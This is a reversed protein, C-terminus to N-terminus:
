QNYGKELFYLEEVFKSINNLETNMFYNRIYFIPIKQNSKLYRNSIILQPNEELRNVFRIPITIFKQLKKEIRVKDRDGLASYVLVSIKKDKELLIELLILQLYDVPLPLKEGTNREFYKSFDSFLKNIYKEIPKDLYKKEFHYYYFIESKKIKLYFNAGLYFYEEPSFKIDFFQSLQYLITNGILFAEESLIAPSLYASVSLITEITLLEDTSIFFYLCELEVQNNMADNFFIYKGLQTEFDKLTFLRNIVEFHNEKAQLRFDHAMRIKTVHLFYLFNELTNQTINPYIKQFDTQIRKISEESYLDDPANSSIKFLIFYFYRIKEEDGVLLYKKNKKIIKLYFGDLIERLQKMTRKVSSESIFLKETYQEITRQKGYLLDILLRYYQSRRLFVAFYYDLTFSPKKHFSYCNYSEIHVSLSQNKDIVPLIEIFKRLLEYLTQVSLNTIEYLEEYTLSVKESSAIFKLIDYVNKDQKELFQEFKEYTIFNKSM